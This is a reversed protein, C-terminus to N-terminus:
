DGPTWGLLRAKDLLGHARHTVAIEAAERVLPVVDRTASDSALELLATAYACRAPSDRLLRVAAVRSQAAVEGCLVTAVGLHAVGLTSPAGWARALELEETVLRAAAGDRGCARLAAAASSRWTLLAPNTWRKALLRRGVEQILGAAVEPQDLRLALVGRAFLLQSYAFSDDAGDAVAEASIRQARDLLGRDISLLVDLGVLNPRVTAHWSTLPMEGYASELDHAAEDLRGLRAKSRALVALVWGAVANLGRRRARVLVEDLGAIAEDFDDTLLLARCAQVRPTLASPDGALAFRALTRTGTLDTGHVAYRWAVVGAGAQDDPADPLDAMELVGFEPQEHPTDEALWYLASCTAREVDTARVAAMTRRVFAGDGRALLQDAADLRARALGTRREALLVRALRRDGVEPAHRSEVVGLEVTLRAWTPDDLPERLARELHGAAALFRGHEWERAAAARLVHVVWPEGSPPAGTLVRAIALEAVAGRFGLRAARAHLDLREDHGMGALLRCVGVGAALRPRDRDVVLGTTLLLDLARAREMALPPALSWVLDLDFEPGCVAIARLLAVADAPLVRVAREVVDGVVEFARDVLDPVFEAHPTSSRLALQDFVSALVAPRGGTCRAAAELFEADAQDSWRTAAMARIAQIGLPRLALVRAGDLSPRFGDSSVVVMVPAETLRHSLGDLWRRSPEDLWQADDVVVLVPGRRAEALLLSVLATPTFAADCEYVAPALSSLLSAVVGRYREVATPSGSASLVTLGDREATELVHGLVASRGSGAPGTVEFLSSTGTTVARVAHDLEALEAHREVLNTGVANDWSGSYTRGRRCM